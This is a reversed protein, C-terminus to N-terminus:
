CSTAERPSPPAAGAPRPRTRRTWPASWTRPPAGARGGHVATRQGSEPERLVAWSGAARVRRRHLPRLAGPLLGDRGRHRASRLPDHQDAERLLAARRQVARAALSPARRRCWTARLLDARGPLRGDGNRSRRPTRDARHRPRNTSWLRWDPGCRRRRAYPPWRGGYTSTTRAVARAGLGGVPRPRSARHPGYAARRPPAAVAGRGPGEFGAAASRRVGGSGGHGCRRGLRREVVAVDSEVPATLRYPRSGLLGPGLLRRLRTLEARLTVPTM